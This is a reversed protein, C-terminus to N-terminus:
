KKEQTKELKTFLEALKEGVDGPLKVAKIDANDLGMEEAFLKAVKDMSDEIRKEEALEEECQKCMHIKAGFRKAIDDISKSCFDEDTFRIGKSKEAAAMINAITKQTNLQSNIIDSYLDKKDAIKLRPNADIEKKLNIQEAFNVASQQLLFHALRNLDKNKM